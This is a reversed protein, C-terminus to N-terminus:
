ATFRREGGYPKHYPAHAAAFINFLRDASLPHGKLKPTSRPASMRVTFCFTAVFHQVHGRVQHARTFVTIFM